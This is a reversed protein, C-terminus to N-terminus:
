SFASTVYNLQTGLRSLSVEMADYKKYLKDEFANMMAKFNSMKTNLERLLTSLDSDDNLGLDTGSKSKIAKNGENLVDGLRQAIGSTNFDDENGDELKAFVNYVADSDEALAARLKDEDLTLQGKVGTTSIGITYASNYKGVGDIPQVVANRMDDIIKRVTSDHYLLGAKAKEEWKEIQEDKMADKQADTLPKYNKNPEEDYLKYLGSLMENYDKVFAKVNDVIKDVDQTVNVAVKNTTTNAFTYSVGNVTTKNSDLNYTVGDIKVESDTGAKTISDGNKFTGITEEELEGNSSQKLNLANFFKTTVDGVDGTSMGFTVNNKSGSESNYFSFRDNVSDYSAKVNTGANNIAATLDNFSYDDDLLEGFTVSIVKQDVSVTTSGTSSATINFGDVSASNGTFSVTEGDFTGVADRGSVTTAVGATFTVSNNDDDYLNLDRLFKATINGQYAGYTSNGTVAVTNSNSGVVSNNFSFTDNESDYNLTIDLGANNVEETLDDFSYDEDILQGFTVSINKSNGSGDSLTFAFAIKTSSVASSVQGCNNIIDYTGDGNDTISKLLVDKLLTSKSSRDINGSGDYRVLNGQGTLSATTATSLINVTHTDTGVDSSATVTAVDSNSVKVGEAKNGDSISFEFATADKRVTQTDGNSDRYQVFEITKGSETETYSSSQLSNYLVDRLNTSNDNGTGYRAIKDGDDTNSILYASSAMKNVEVYHTMNAANANATVTVASEDSSTANRANMTNSMKYNSLTSNNFTQIQSYLTVFAEKTWENKTYTQKMKDYENQKSMMGVKVMSEIDLGSGSLGYIGNVGM